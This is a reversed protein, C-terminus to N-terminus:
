WSNWGEVAITVVVDYDDPSADGNPLTNSGEVQIELLGGMVDIHRGAEAQWVFDGIDPREILFPLGLPDTPTPVPDEHMANNFSLGFRMQSHGGLKGSFLQRGKDTVPDIHQGYLNFMDEMNWSNWGTAANWGSVSGAGTNYKVQFDADWNYRFSQYQHATSIWLSGSTMSHKESEREIKRCLQIADVRHKSPAYWKLHGYLAVGRDNDDLDNVNKVGIRIGTVRYTETMSMQKGLMISLMHSIDVLINYPPYTGDADPSIDSGIPSPSTWAAGHYNISSSNDTVRTAVMHQGQSMYTWVDQRKYDNQLISSRGNKCHPGCLM